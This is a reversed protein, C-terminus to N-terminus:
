NIGPSFPFKGLLMVFLIVGASWIDTPPGDYSQPPCASNSPRQEHEATPPLGHTICRITNSSTTNEDEEKSRGRRRRRGAAHVEPAM